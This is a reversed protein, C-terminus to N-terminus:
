NNWDADPHAELQGALCGDLYEAPDLSAWDIGDNTTGAASMELIFNCAGTPEDFQGYFIMKGIGGSAGVDFGVKYSESTSGTGTCASLSAATIILTATLAFKSILKEM